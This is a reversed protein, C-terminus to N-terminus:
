VLGKEKRKLYKKYQYMQVYKNEKIKLQLQNKCDPFRHSNFIQPYHSRAIVDPQYERMLGYQSPDKFRIVEYKKSLLSLISQDHRHEVFGEVDDTALVSPNGSIIREDQAYRLWEELIKNGIGNSTKKILVYTAISQPTDWYRPENCDMLIFADKKTYYKELKDNELSFIMIDMKEAEMNDILKQIQDVYCAGADAYILYDGESLKEYAQNIIYPKWLFYGNGRPASLIGRNKEFFVPDMDSPSYNIVQDAGYKKATKENLKQSGSFKADAYNIALIMIKEGVLLM